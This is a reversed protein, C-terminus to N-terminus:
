ARLLTIASGIRIVPRLADLYATFVTGVPAGDFYRVTVAGEVREEQIQGGRSLSEQLVGPTVIDVISGECVANKVANPVVTDLIDFDDTDVADTRPWLLGQTSTKKDGVFSTRGRADVARTSRVLSQEIASDAYATLVFGIDACYAKFEAVTVYSNAAAKGTGDEVTFAM